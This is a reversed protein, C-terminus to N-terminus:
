NCWWNPNKLYWEITEVLGAEFDISPSFDLSRKIKEGSLGYRYDHGPRDSIFDLYSEPLNMYELLTRAIDINTTENAGAINYIEGPAGHLLVEYIAKCNDQVHIWNRINLGSGYIPIKENKSLNNIIKPILKEYHQMPGYNNSSRTIRADIGFTHVYSLVLLDAAAKSAAYPSSPNLAYEETALDEMHSGYVEDTSVQVYSKLKNRIVSDLLVQTGAINTQVFEHRSQISRDVHSEAAFNIAVDCRSMVEDVLASDCINGKVFEFRSDRLLHEINRYNGAYTLADLIIVKDFCAPQTTSLMAIFNSGIFGAGGSVFLNVIRGKM